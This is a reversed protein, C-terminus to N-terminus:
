KVRQAEVQLTTAGTATQVTGLETGAPVRDEWPGLEFPLGSPITICDGAPKCYTYGQAEAPLISIQIFNAGQLPNTFATASTNTVTVAASKTRRGIDFGGQAQVFWGAGFAILLALIKRVM